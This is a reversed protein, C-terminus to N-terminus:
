KGPTSFTLSAWRSEWVAGTEEITSEDPLIMHVTNILYIADAIRKFIVQGDQDTTLTAETIKDSSKVFLSAQANAFVKGRWWLQAVLEDSTDTYPNSKLVREFELGVQRDHGKGAGVQILTKAHRRFAEVFDEPPLQRKKHEALVWDMGKGRVFKEFKSSSEYNLQFPYTELSVITLGDGLPSYSIAPYDGLRPKVPVTKDDLHINITEIESPLYAYNDGKLQQGIKIHVNIRAGTKIVFDNPHLWYEHAM